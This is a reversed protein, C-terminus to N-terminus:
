AHAATLELESPEEGSSAYLTEEWYSPTMRACSIALRVRNPHVNLVTVFIDEGIVLGQNECRSLVRM